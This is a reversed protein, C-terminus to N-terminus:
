RQIKRTMCHDGVQQRLTAIAEGLSTYFRLGESLNDRLEVYAQLRAAPATENALLDRSKKQRRRGMGIWSWTRRCTAAAATENALLDRSKKQRCRGTGM